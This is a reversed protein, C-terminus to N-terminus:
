GAQIAPPSEIKHNLCLASLSPHIPHVNAVPNKLLAFSDSL